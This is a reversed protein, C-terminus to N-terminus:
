IACSTVMARSSSPIDVGLFTTVPAAIPTAIGAATVTAFFSIPSSEFSVGFRLVREAARLVALARLDALPAAFFADAFVFVAPRLVVDVARLVFAPGARFADLVRLFVVARALDDVDFDPGARFADVARLFVVARALDDADLDL